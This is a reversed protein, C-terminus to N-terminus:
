RALDTVPAFAIDDDAAPLPRAPGASRVFHDRAVPITLGPLVPNWVAAPADTAAIAGTRPGARRELYPAISQRGSDARQERGAPTLTVQMLTEAEAFTAPTVAPGSGTATGFTPPAGPTAATSQSATASAPAAASAPPEDQRCAAAAVLVGLPARILFQRRTNMTLRLTRCKASWAGVPRPAGVRDGFPGDLGCRLREHRCDARGTADDAIKPLDDAAQHGRRSERRDGHERQRKAD